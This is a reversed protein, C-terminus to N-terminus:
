SVLMQSTTILGEHPSLITTVISFAEGPEKEKAPVEPAASAQGAAGAWPVYGPPEMVAAVGEEVENLDEEDEPVRINVAVIDGYDRQM